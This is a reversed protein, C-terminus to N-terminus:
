GLWFCKVVPLDFVFVSDLANTTRHAFRASSGYCPLRPLFIRISSIFKQTHNQLYMFGESIQFVLKGSQTSYLISAHSLKTSRQTRSASTALEFRTADVLLITRSFPEKKDNRCSKFKHDIWSRVSNPVYLPGRSGTSRPKPCVSASRLGAHWHCANLVSRAPPSVAPEFRTADVLLVLIMRLLPEKKIHKVSALFAFCFGGCSM